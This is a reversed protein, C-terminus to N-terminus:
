ALQRIYKIPSLECGQRIGLKRLFWGLIELVSGSIGVQKQNLFSAPCERMKNLWFLMLEPSGCFPPFPKPTPILGNLVKGKGAKGGRYSHCRYRDYHSLIDTNSLVLCLLDECPDTGKRHLEQFIVGHQELHSSKKRFYKDIKRHQTKTTVSPIKPQPMHCNASWSDFGPGRYQSSM